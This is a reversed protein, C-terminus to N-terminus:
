PVMVNSEWTQFSKLGIVGPTNQGLVIIQVEDIYALSLQALGVYRRFLVGFYM